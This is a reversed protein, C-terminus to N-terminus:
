IFSSLLFASPCGLREENFLYDLRNIGERERRKINKFIKIKSFSASNQM